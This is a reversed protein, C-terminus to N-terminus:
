DDINEGGDIVICMFEILEKVTSMHGSIKSFDNFDLGFCDEIHLVFNLLRISDFELDNVPNMSIDIESIEKGTCEALISM